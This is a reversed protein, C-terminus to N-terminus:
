DEKLLSTYMEKFQDKYKVENDIIEQSLGEKKCQNIFSDFTSAMTTLRKKVDDKSANAIYADEQKLLSANYEKISDIADVVNANFTNKEKALADYDLVGKSALLELQNIKKKQAILANICATKNNWLYQANYLLSVDAQFKEEIQIFIDSVHNSKLKSFQKEFRDNFDDRKYDIKINQITTLENSEKKIFDLNYKNLAEQLNNGELKLESKRQSLTEESIAGKNVLIDLQQKKKEFEIIQDILSDKEDKKEVTSINNNVNTKMESQSRVTANEFYIHKRVGQNPKDKTVEYIVIPGLPTFILGMLVSILINRSTLFTFGFFLLFFLISVIISEIIFLGKTIPTITYAQKTQDNVISQYNKGKYPTNIIWFPLLAYIRKMDSINFDYVHIDKKQTSELKDRFNKECGEKLRDEARQTISKLNENAKKSLYGAMYETSFPILKMDDFACISDITENDIESLADIPMHKYDVSIALHDCYFPSINYEKSAMQIMNQELLDAKFDIAGSFLYFPIYIPTLTSNNIQKKLEKPVLKKTNLYYLLAGKAEEKTSIIPLIYRPKFKGTMSEKFLLNNGCYPCTTSVMEKSGVISAGCAECAYESFSDLDSYLEDEESPSLEEKYKFLDKSNYISKCFSCILKGSNPDYSVVGGCNPCEFTKGEM